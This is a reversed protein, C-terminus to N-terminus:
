DKPKTWGSDGKPANPEDVVTFDADVVNPQQPPESPQGFGSVHINKSNMFRAAGWKILAARVPPLMLLLGVADTFFGPTILVVGAVLLLAGHAMPDVPNQGEKLSSQLRNMTQFGQQRLLTSGLLATLIVIGLTPWTGLFGGLEIFLAIEIIPVLVFILFLWM